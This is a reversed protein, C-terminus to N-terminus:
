PLLQIWTDGGDTTRYFNLPTWTYDDPTTLVWGNLDDVFDVGLYYEGPPIGDAGLFSWSLGGDVSQLFALNAAVWGVDESSFDIARGDFVSNQFTWTLGYDDSRYILMQIGTPYNARVPLYAISASVFIPQWVDFMGGEYGAPIAIDTEQTWTQGGDTTYYLYFYDEMPIAGGIWGSDIGRFTLGNKSGSEPLSKMEGPEHSFVLTWTIGGDLTRYIAMYHSGAGAGLSVTAYGITLDLFNYRANDFPLANVAWTLGGDQTHYLMGGSASNPTFWATEADLFFPYIGHTTYGSPPSSLAPPTADLWTVGGDLTRLLHNGDQTVAWGQTPTFMAFNFIVPDIFEPLPPTATFTATITPTESPFLTETQTPTPTDVELEPEETEGSPQTETNTPSPTVKQWPPTCALISLFIALIVLLLASKRNM